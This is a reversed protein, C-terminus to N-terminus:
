FTNNFQKLYLGRLLPTKIKVLSRDTLPLPFLDGPISPTWGSNYEMRCLNSAFNGGILLM